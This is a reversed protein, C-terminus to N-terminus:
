RLECLCHTYMGKPDNFRLLGNTTEDIRQAIRSVFDPTRVWRSLDVGTRAAVSLFGLLIEESVSLETEITVTGFSGQDLGALLGAPDPITRCGM